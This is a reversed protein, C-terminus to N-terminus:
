KALRSSRVQIAIGNRESGKLLEFIRSGKERVRMPTIRMGVCPPRPNKMERKLEKKRDWKDIDAHTCKM